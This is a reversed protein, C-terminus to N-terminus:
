PKDYAQPYREYKYSHVAKRRRDQPINRKSYHVRNRYKRKGVKKFQNNKNKIYAGDRRRYYKGSTYKKVPSPM